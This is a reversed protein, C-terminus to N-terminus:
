WAAARLAHRAACLDVWADALLHQVAQFSGIPADFQRRACAHDVADLVAATGVGVLDAGFLVGAIADFSADDTRRISVLDDSGPRMAVRSRDATVVHDTADLLHAHGAHVLVVGDAGLADVAVRGDLSAVPRRDTPGLLEGALSAGVFPAASLAAGFEEACVELDLVSGGDARVGLLGSEALVTWARDADVAPPLEAISRAGLDRAVARALDQLAIQDEGLAARM